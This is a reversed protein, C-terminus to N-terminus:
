VIELDNSYILTRERMQIMNKKCCWEEECEKICNQVCFGQEDTNNQSIFEPQISTSHIGQYHFIDKVDVVIRSFDAGELVGVHVSAITMGDVLQWVHLDHQSVVGSVKRIKHRIKDLDIGVPVQQLLIMATRKVLPIASAMTMGVILISSVPDVYKTWEGTSYKLVAGTILVFLSAVADGAFHIFVGFMNLDMGMCTGNGHKKIKKEKKDGHAHGHDKSEDGGHSHGHKEKKEGHSHGHKEEKKEGHSHGHKKEKKEGHAHGHKEKKEGHSHGHGESGDHAHGHNVDDHDHHDHGDHDLELEGHSHGHKKEKKDGHSHGHAKKEKNKKKEGHAHGHDNSAGHSHGGGGGHSHAHAMGTCAFVITGITNIALGAGAISMFIPGGDMAKPSIIRPIAELAVYLGMSVLFCGNTLGGLVEARAWGYSMKDDSGRKATKIAWWAIYLSAADTLNHFGDSLLTLSNLYLAAALECIVYIVTAAGIILIAASKKDCCSDQDERATHIDTNEGNLLLPRKDDRHHSM